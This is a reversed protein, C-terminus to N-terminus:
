VHGGGDHGGGHAGRVSRAHRGAEYDQDSVPDGWATTGLSTSTHLLFSDAGAGHWHVEGAPTWVVDGVALPQPTEGQACVWGAGATVQLVQGREHSHWNTRAGPTFFVTNITVGDTGPLVPDSWVEGVITDRTRTSAAADVRSRVIKV